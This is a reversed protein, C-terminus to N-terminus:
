LAVDRHSGKRSKTKAAREAAGPVGNWAWSCSPELSHQSASITSEAISPSAQM